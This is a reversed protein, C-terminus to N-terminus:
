KYFIKWNMKLIDLPIRDKESYFLQEHKIQEELTYKFKIFRAPNGAIISYPPANLSRHVVSNAAIVVGRAIKVDPLITVNTGIWVEENIETTFGNCKGWNEDNVMHTYDEYPHNFTIATFNSSISCNDRIILKGCFTVFTSFYGISVHNGIYVNKKNGRFPREIRVKLGISGFGKKNSFFLYRISKVGEILNRIM